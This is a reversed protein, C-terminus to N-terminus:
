PLNHGIWGAASWEPNLISTRKKNAWIGTGGGRVARYMLWRTVSNTGSIPDARMAEYFVEDTTQRTVYLKSGDEIIWYGFQYPFDHIVAPRTAKNGAVLWALPLRPVSARDTIFETPVVVVKGLQASQYRLPALTLWIDRGKDWGILRGEFFDLFKSQM